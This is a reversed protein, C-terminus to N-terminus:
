PGSYEFGNTDTEQLTITALRGPVAPQLASWIWRCLNESTPVRDRFDPIEDNIFRHDLRDVVQRRVVRDLEALNAIMGSAPDAKGSVAVWLTYNHGHGHPNACRGYVRRNREPDWQARSLRHGASFTYRRILRLM